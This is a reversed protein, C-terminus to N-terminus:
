LMKMALDSKQLDALEPEKTTPITGVGAQGGRTPTVTRQTSVERRRSTNFLTM